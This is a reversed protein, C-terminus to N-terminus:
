YVKEWSVLAVQLQGEGVADGPLEIGPEDALSQHHVRLTGSGTITDAIVAGYVDTTGSGFWSATGSVNHAYILGHVESCGTLRVQGTCLIALGDDASGYTTEGTVYVDGNVVLTGHGEVQGSLHVDGDVYIVGEPLVTEGCFTHDGSYIVEAVSQYHALDITPLPMSTPEQSYEGGVYNSGSVQSSGGYKIDGDIWNSGSMRFNGGAEADGHVTVNGSLRLNGNCHIKSDFDPTGSLTLDNDSFLAYGSGTAGSFIDNHETVPDPPLYRAVSRIQTEWGYSQGTSVIQIAGPIAQGADDAYQSVSTTVSGGLDNLTYTLPLASDGEYLRWVAYETGAEALCLARSERKKRSAERSQSTTLMLFTAGLYLMVGMVILAIVMAAGRRTDKIRLSM